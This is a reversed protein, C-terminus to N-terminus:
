DRILKSKGNSQKEWIGIKEGKDENELIMFVNNDKDRYYNKKRYKVIYLEEEDPSNLQLKDVPPSPETSSTPSWGTAEINNSTENVTNSTIEMTITEKIKNLEIQKELEKTLRIIEKDKATIEKAQSLVINFRTSKTDEEQKDNLQDKLNDITKIYEKERESYGNIDHELSTIMSEKEKLLNCLSSQKNISTELEIVNNKQLLNNHKEIDIYKAIIETTLSELKSKCEIIDM